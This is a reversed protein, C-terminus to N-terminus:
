SKRGKRAKGLNRIQAEYARSFDSGFLNQFDEEAQERVAAYEEIRALDKATPREIRALNMNDCVDALKM